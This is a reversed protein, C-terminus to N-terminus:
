GWHRIKPMTPRQSHHPNAVAMLDVVNGRIASMYTFRETPM